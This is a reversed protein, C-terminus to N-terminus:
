LGSLLGTPRIYGTIVTDRDTRCSMRKVALQDEARATDSARRSFQSRPASRLGFANCALRGQWIRHGGGAALRHVARAASGRVSITNPESLSWEAVRWKSCWPQHM